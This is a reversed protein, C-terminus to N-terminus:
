PDEFHLIIVFIILEKSTILEEGPDKERLLSM